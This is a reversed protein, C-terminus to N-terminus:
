MAPLDAATLRSRWGTSLRRTVISFVRADRLGCCRNTSVRPKDPLLKGSVLGRPDVLQLLGQHMEFCRSQAQTPLGSLIRWPKWCAKSVNEAYAPLAGLDGHLSYFPPPPTPPLSQLNLALCLSHSKLPDNYSHSCWHNGSCPCSSCMWFLVRWRKFVKGPINM